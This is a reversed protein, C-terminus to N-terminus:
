LFKYPVAANIRLAYFFGGSHWCLCRRSRWHETDSNNNCWRLIFVVAFTGKSASKCHFVVLTRSVFGVFALLNLWVRPCHLIALFFFKYFKAFTEFLLRNFEMPIPLSITSSSLFINPANLVIKWSLSKFINKKKCRSRLIWIGLPFCGVLLFCM